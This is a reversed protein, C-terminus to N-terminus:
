CLWTNYTAISGVFNLCMGLICLPYNWKVNTDDEPLYVLVGCYVFPLLDNLYRNGFHWGGMTKHSVILLIHIIFTLPLVINLYNRAPIKSEENLDSEEDLTSEDNLSSEKNLASEENLSSEENLTCEEVSQPLEKKKKLNKLLSFIYYCLFSTYIPSVLWISMGDFLYFSLPGKDASATPLRFLSKLNNLIYSTSFQGNPSEMFEPLYNHGFEFVNGFRAYNLLMYSIGILSPIICCKWNDKLFLLFLPKRGETDNISIKKKWVSIFLMLLLPVYVIQFPRCGFACALFSLSFGLKGKLAYYIAMLSLTFAFNQAIFWVWGNVSCYITNCGLLLFVAFFLAHNTNGRVLKYLKVCYVGAVLFSVLVLWHDPTKSGFILAFPLLVYSVFPPFSCYYKGNYIALELSTYNQGLDLRGKLWSEAQLAFTNYPNEKNPWFGTFSYFVLLGALLCLIVMVYDLLNDPKYKKISKM